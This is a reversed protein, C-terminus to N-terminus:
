QRIFNHTFNYPFDDISCTALLTFSDPFTDSFDNNLTSDPVILTYPVKGDVRM